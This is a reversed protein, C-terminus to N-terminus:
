RSRITGGHSKLSWLKTHNPPLAPVYRLGSRRLSAPLVQGNARLEVARHQYTSLGTSAMLVLSSV